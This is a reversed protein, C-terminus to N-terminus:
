GDVVVFGGLGSPLAEDRLVGDDDEGSGRAAHAVDHLLEEGGDVIVLDSGEGKRRGVVLGERMARGGEEDASGADSAQFGEDGEM